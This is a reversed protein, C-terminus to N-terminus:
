NDIACIDNSGNNCAQYDSDCYDLSGYSCAAADIYKCYDTTANGRCNKIDIAICIDTAGNLCTGNDTVCMKASLIRTTKKEDNILKLTISYKM